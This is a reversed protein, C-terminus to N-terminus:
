IKLEMKVIEYGVCPYMGTRIALLGGPNAELEWSSTLNTLIQCVFGASGQGAAILNTAVCVDGTKLCLRMCRSSSALEYSTVLQPGSVM